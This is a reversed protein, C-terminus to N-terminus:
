MKGKREKLRNLLQQKFEQELMLLRAVKKAPLVKKFEAVYKKNLDLQQQKLSLQENLFKDADADTLSSKAKLLRVNEREKVRLKKMQVEFENYVPWFSKAEASSLNLKETIFGVKLAEIKDAKGDDDEDTQQAFITSVSLLAVLLFINTLRM